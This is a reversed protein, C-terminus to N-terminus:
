ASTVGVPTGYQDADQSIAGETPYRGKRIDVYQTLRCLKPLVESEDSKDSEDSEDSKDSKRAAGRTPALEMPM